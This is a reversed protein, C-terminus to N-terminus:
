RKLISRQSDTNLASDSKLKRKTNKFNQEIQETKIYLEIKRVEITQNAYTFVKHTKLKPLAM